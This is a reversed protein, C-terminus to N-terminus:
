VPSRAGDPVTIRFSRIEFPRLEFRVEREDVVEVPGDGEYSREMLDVSEVSAVPFPLEISVRRRGGHSEFVRLVYGEGDEARKLAEVVM